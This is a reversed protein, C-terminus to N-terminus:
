KRPALARMLDAVQSQLAEVQGRLQVAEERAKAAEKRANDREAYAKTLREAVRNAEAAAQKRQEQHTQVAAEARAKM